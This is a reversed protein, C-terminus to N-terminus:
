DDISHATEPGCELYSLYDIISRQVLSTATKKLLIDNVKNWLDDLETCGSGLGFLRLTRLAEFARTHTPKPQEPDDMEVGTQDEDDDDNPEFHNQILDAIQDDTLM